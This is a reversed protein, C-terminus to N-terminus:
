EHAHEPQVDTSDFGEDPTMQKAVGADSEARSAAGDTELDLIRTQNGGEDHAQELALAIYYDNGLPLRKALRRIPSKRAMQDPWDKWAPWKGRKEAIDRIKDLDDRDMFEIEHHGGGAM